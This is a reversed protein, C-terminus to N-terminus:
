FTGASAGATAEEAPADKKLRLRKRPQEGEPTSEGDDGGTAAEQAAKAEREAKEAEKQQRKAEKEAEREAKAQEREAKKQAREEAKRQKEAERQGANAEREQRVQEAHQKQWESHFVFTAAVVTEVPTGDDYGKSKIYNSFDVMAPSPNEPSFRKGEPM